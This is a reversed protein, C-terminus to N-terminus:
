LLTTSMQDRLLSRTAFAIISPMPESLTFVAFPSVMSCFDIFESYMM